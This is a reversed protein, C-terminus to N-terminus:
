HNSDGEFYHGQAGTCKTLRHKCQEFCKQFARCSPRRMDRFIPL